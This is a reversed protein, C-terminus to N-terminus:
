EGKVIENVIRGFNMSNTCYDRSHFEGFKNELYDDVLRYDVMLSTMEYFMVPVGNLIDVFISMCIPLDDVKGLTILKGETIQKWDLKDKYELWLNIKEYSNAEVAFQAKEILTDINEFM